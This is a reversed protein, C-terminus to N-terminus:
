IKISLWSPDTQWLLERGTPRHWKERTSSSLARAPVYKCVHKLSNWFSGNELSFGHHKNGLIFMRPSGRAITSRIRPPKPHQKVLSTASVFFSSNRLRQRRASWNPPHPFSFWYIVCGKGGQVGILHTSSLFCYIVCGKGGQVGILHTRSLFVIISM